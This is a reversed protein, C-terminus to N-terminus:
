LFQSQLKAQQTKRGKSAAGTVPYSHKDCGMALVVFTAAILAACIM